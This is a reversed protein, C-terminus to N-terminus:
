MSCEQTLSWNVDRKTFYLIEMVYLTSRWSHSWLNGRPVFLTYRKIHMKFGTYVVLTWTDPLKTPQGIGSFLDTYSASHAFSEVSRLSFNRWGPALSANVFDPYFVGAYQEGWKCDFIWKLLLTKTCYLPRRWTIKCSLLLFSGWRLIPQCVWTSWDSWM